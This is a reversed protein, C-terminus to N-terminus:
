AAPVTRVMRITAAAITVAGALVCFVVFADVHTGALALLGASLGTAGLITSFWEIPVRVRLRIANLVLMGAGVGAVAAYEATGRPLAIAAFGLFLLGWGIDNLGSELRHRRKNSDMENEEIRNKGFYRLIL